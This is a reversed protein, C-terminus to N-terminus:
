AASRKQQIQNSDPVAVLEAGDSKSSLVYQLWNRYVCTASSQWTNQLSGAIVDDPFSALFDEDRQSIAIEQFEEALARTDRDADLYGQPMSPYTEREGRLFRGIDRRYEKLLTRTSYEPHGQFYVFLSQKHKKVFMDVGAEPSKALVTYGCSVLDDERVENWRSHPMRAIEASGHTLAHDHARKFEFVGFQKDSLRHREIGDNHLVGAHAALCSLVTSHTNSAAWDFVDALVPWYAEERLDPRLPETGTIIVADCRSKWLEDIGLYFKNLHQQAWVSRAINPLSYLRLCVPIDGAARDILESFQSETAELAADPMNNILGITLSPAHAGYAVDWPTDCSGQEPECTTQKRGRQMMVPM